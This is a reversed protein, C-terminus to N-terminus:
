EKLSLSLVTMPQPYHSHKSLFVFLARSHLWKVSHGGVMMWQLGLAPLTQAISHAGKQEIAGGKGLFVQCVAKLLYIPSIMQSLPFKAPLGNPQICEKDGKTDLNCTSDENSQLLTHSM